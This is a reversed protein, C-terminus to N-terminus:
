TQERTTHDHFALLSIAYRWTGDAARRVVNIAGPALVLATDRAQLVRDPGALYTPEHTWIETAFSAIQARGRAQRPTAGDVIVGGDEFLDAVAERERVLLADELM